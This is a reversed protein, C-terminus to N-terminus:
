LSIKRVAQRLEAALQPVATEANQNSEYELSVFGRYNAKALMGLLRPWDAKEKQGGPTAIQEKLHVNSVYPLCLATQAYGNRPFNGTDLNLGVWPSDARRVLEVTPEATTTLGGDDEIGLVIGKRGAYEAARKLVETAWTLAQAESAGKPIAGGFVRVHGAGVKEAVDVWKRATEFEAAQLEPTPQALRIRAAVSYLSVGNKYAVHRLNALFADSTDPFWYVTTDLGELGWDAVSRILTEYTLKKAALEQRFSYAVLGPRLRGGTTDARLPLAVGTAAGALTSQWFQRRNM